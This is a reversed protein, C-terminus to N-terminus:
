SLWKYGCKKCDKRNFLGDYEWRDWEHWCGHFIYGFLSSLM